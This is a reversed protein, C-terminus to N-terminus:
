LTDAWAQLRAGTEDTLPHGHGSLLRDPRLQALRRASRKAEAWDDTLLRLPLSLGTVRRIPVINLVADGSFLLGDRERLYAIHGPTHGPCAIVRLPGGPVSIRDGDDVTLLAGCREVPYIREGILFALASVPRLLMHPGTQAYTVRPRLLFREERRHLTVNAGWDAFALAGGAHDCHAHTLLVSRVREPGIGLETLANLLRPQDRQLGTDILTADSNHMSGSNQVLLYANSWDLPIQFVRPAVERAIM